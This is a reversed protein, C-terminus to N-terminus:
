DIPNLQEDWESRYYIYVDGAKVKGFTEQSTKDAFCVVFDYRHGGIVIIVMPVYCFKGKGYVRKEEAAEVMDAIAFLPLGLSKVKPTCHTTRKM